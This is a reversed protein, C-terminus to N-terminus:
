AALTGRGTRRNALSSAPRSAPRSAAQAAGAAGPWHPSVRALRSASCGRPPSGISDTPMLPWVARITSSVPAAPMTSFWSATM